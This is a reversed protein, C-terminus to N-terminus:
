ANVLQFDNIDWSRAYGPVVDDALVRAWSDACKFGLMFTLRGNDMTQCSLFEPNSALAWGEFDSATDNWECVGGCSRPLIIAIDVEGDGINQVVGGSDDVLYTEPVFSNDFTVSLRRDIFELATARVPASELVFARYDLEGDDYATKYLHSPLVFRTVGWEGSVVIAFEYM